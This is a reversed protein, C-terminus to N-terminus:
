KSRFAFSVHLIDFDTPIYYQCTREHVYAFHDDLVVRNTQNKADRVDGEFLRARADERCRSGTTITPDFFSGLPCCLRICPKLHCVCGRIHQEVDSKIGKEFTYDVTAYQDSSFRTGDFLISGDSQKIGDTINTSDFFDCPLGVTSQQSRLVGVLLLILLNSVFM